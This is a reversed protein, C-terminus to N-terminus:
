ALAARQRSRFAVLAPRAALGALLLLALATLYPALLTRTRTTGPAAVTPGEGVASRLAGRAGGLESEEFARGRTADALAGLSAKGAPDPRYAAEPKGDTFIAEGSHWFRVTVLKYGAQAAFARALASTDTPGSEGDTLLM